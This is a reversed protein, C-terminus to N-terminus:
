LPRIETIDYCEINLKQLKQIYQTGVVFKGIASEKNEAEVIRVINSVLTAPEGKVFTKSDVCMQIVIYENM